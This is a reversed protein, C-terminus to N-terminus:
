PPRGPRRGPAADGDRVETGAARHDRTCWARDCAPRLLSPPGTSARLRDPPRPLARGGAACPRRDAPRAFLAGLGRGDRDSTLLVAEDGAQFVTDTQVPVLRGDRIILSVWAYGARHIDGVPIREAPSGPAVVFRHLGEPEHQFRIGLSWPETEAARQPIRLQRALWPVTGGQVIVSFAVVVFIIEYLRDAGSIGAQVILAGLLIPVAGKLGAWAVFLRENFPMRVPWLLLGVLLPRIVVALALALLLGTQWAGGDALSRLNITLGLM